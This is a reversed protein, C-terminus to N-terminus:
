SSSWGIGVDDDENGINESDQREQDYGDDKKDWTEEPSWPMYQGMVTYDVPTVPRRDPLQMRKENLKDWMEGRKQWSM